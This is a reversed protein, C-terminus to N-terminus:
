NGANEDSIPPTVPEGPNTETGVQRPGTQDTRQVDVILFLVIGLIAVVVLAIFLREAKSKRRRPYREEPKM